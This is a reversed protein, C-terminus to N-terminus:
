AILRIVGQGVRPVLVHRVAHAFTTLDCNVCMLEDFADLLELFEDILAYRRDDGLRGRRRTRSRLAWL